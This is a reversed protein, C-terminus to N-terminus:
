GRASNPVGPVTMGWPLRTSVDALGGNCNEVSSSMVIRADEFAIWLTKKEFTGVDPDNWSDIMSLFPLVRVVGDMGNLAGAALVRSFMEVVGTAALPNVRTRVRAPDGWVVVVMEVGPAKGVERAIWVAMTARVPYEPTVTDPEAPEYTILQPAM